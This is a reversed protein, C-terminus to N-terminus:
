NAEHGHKRPLVETLTRRAYDEASSFGAVTSGKALILAADVVRLDECGGDVCEYNLFALALSDPRDGASSTAPPLAAAYALAHLSAARDAARWSAAEAAEFLLVWADQSEAAVARDFIKTRLEALREPASAALGRPARMNDGVAIREQAAPQTRAM